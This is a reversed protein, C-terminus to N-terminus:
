GIKKPPPPCLINKRKKKVGRNNIVLGKCNQLWGRGTILSQGRIPKLIYREPDFKEPEPWKTPDHHIGYVSIGINLGKRIFVDNVTVDRTAERQLRITFALM